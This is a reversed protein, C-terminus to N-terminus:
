DEVERTQGNECVKTCVGDKLYWAEGCLVTGAEDKYFYSGDPLAYFPRVKSDELLIDEFLRMGDLTWHRVNQFHPLVNIRTLGLGELYREYDPDVAEGEEEPSAYVVEACNMTGASIGIVVGDYSELYTKLGLEHFYANETPVHGGSLVILNYSNWRAMMEAANRGDCLELSEMAIGSKEMAKQFFELMEDNMAANDPDSAIMLGRVMGPCAAKLRRLFGNEEALPASVWTDGVRASGGPSSTMFLKMQIAEEGTEDM